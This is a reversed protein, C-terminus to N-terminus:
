SLCKAIIIASSMNQVQTLSCAKVVTFNLVHSCCHSYKALSYQKEIIKACGPQTAVLCTAITAM